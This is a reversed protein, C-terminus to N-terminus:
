SDLWYVLIIGALGCAPVFLVWFLLSMGLNLPTTWAMASQYWVRLVAVGGLIGVGGVFVLTWHLGGTLSSPDRLLSRCMAALICGCCVFAVVSTCIRWWQQRTRREPPPARYM